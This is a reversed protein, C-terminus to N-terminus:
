TLRPIGASGDMGHFERGIRVDSPHQLVISGQLLARPRRISPHWLFPKLDKRKSEVMGHMGERQMSRPISDPISQIRELHNSPGSRSTGFCLELEHM